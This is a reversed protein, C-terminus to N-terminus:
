ADDERWGDGDRVHRESTGDSFDIVFSHAQLGDATHRAKILAEEHTAFDGEAISLNAPQVGPVSPEAFYAITVTMAGGENL